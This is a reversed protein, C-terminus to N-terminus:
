ETLTIEKGAVRIMRQKIEFIRTGKEEMEGSDKLDYIDMEVMQDDLQKLRERLTEDITGAEIMSKECKGCVLLRDVEVDDLDEMHTQGALVEAWANYAIDLNIYCQKDEMTGRYRECYMNM